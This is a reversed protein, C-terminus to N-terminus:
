FVPPLHPPAPLSGKVNQGSMKAMPQPDLFRTGGCEVYRFSNRSVASKLSLPVHDVSVHAIGLRIAEEEGVERQLVGVVVERRIWPSLIMSRSYIGLQLGNEVNGNVCAGEIM